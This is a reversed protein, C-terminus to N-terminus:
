ADDGGHKRIQSELSAWAECALEKDSLSRGFSEFDEATNGDGVTIQSETLSAFVELSTGPWLVLDTRGGSADKIERWTHPIDPHQAFYERAM